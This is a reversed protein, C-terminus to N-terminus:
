ALVDLSCYAASPLMRAEEFSLRAHAALETFISM